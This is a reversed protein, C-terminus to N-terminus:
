DLSQRYSGHLPGSIACSCSFSQCAARVYHSGRHGATVLPLPPHRNDIIIPLGQEGYPSYSKFIRIQTDTGYLRSIQPFRVHVCNYKTRKVGQISVPSFESPHQGFGAFGPVKKHLIIGGLLIIPRYERNCDCIKIDLQSMTPCERNKM